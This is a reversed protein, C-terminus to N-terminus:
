NKIIQTSYEYDGSTLKVLYEASPIWSLNLKIKNSENPLSISHILRGLIDYVVVNITDGPSSSFGFSITDIFPNPFATTTITNNNKNIIAGWNSQQFGQQVTYGNAATGTVSQGITYNVKNGFPTVVAGGQSSVMEHHLVQAKVQSYTILILFLIIVRM